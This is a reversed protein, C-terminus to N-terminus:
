IKISNLNTFIFHNGSKGSGMATIKGIYYKRKPFKRITCDTRKICNPYLVVNVKSGDSLRTDVIPTAENVIRNTEAVIQQIVDELKKKSIFRKDSLLIQGEREIFINQTGNIMIETITEDEILNQLIDLKRFANFLEQGVEVKDQLSIYEKEGYEELVRYIVETLEEMM